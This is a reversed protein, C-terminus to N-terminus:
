ENIVIENQEWLKRGDEDKLIVRICILDSNEKYPKCSKDVQLGDKKFAADLFDKGSVSQLVVEKSIYFARLKQATNQSSLVNLYILAALTTCFIIIVMAVITEILTNGSLKAM